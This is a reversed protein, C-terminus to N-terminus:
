SIISKASKEENVKEKRDHGNARADAQSIKVALKKPSITVNKEDKISKSEEMNNM